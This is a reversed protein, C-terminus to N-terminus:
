HHTILYGILGIISVIIATASAMVQKVRSNNQQEILLRIESLGKSLEMKLGSVATEVKDLREDFAELRQELQRYRQACLQTHLDLDESENKIMTSPGKSPYHHEIM